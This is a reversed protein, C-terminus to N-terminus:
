TPAFHNRTARERQSQERRGVDVERSPNRRSGRAPNRWHRRATVRHLRDGELDRRGKPEPNRVAAHSEAEAVPRTEEIASEEFIRVVDFRDITRQNQM